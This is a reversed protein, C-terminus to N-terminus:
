RQSVWTIMVVSDCSRSFSGSMTAMTAADAARVNDPTGNM